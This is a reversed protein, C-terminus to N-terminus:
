SACRAASKPTAYRMSPEAASASSMTCSASIRYESSSAEPMALARAHSMEGVIDADIAFVLKQEGLQGLISGRFEPVQLPASGLTILAERRARQYGDRYAWSIWQALMALTGRTQQFQPVTSWKRQFVTLTAPHFPYCRDFRERLRAQEGRMARGGLWALLALPLLVLLALVVLLRTRM